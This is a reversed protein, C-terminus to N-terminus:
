DSVQRWQDSTDSLVAFVHEGSLDASIAVKQISDRGRAQTLKARPQRTSKYEAWRGVPRQGHLSSSVLSHWPWMVDRATSRVWRLSPRAVLSMLAARLRPLGSGLPKTAEVDKPPPPATRTLQAYRREWDPLHCYSSARSCEQQASRAISSTNSASYTDSCTRLLM